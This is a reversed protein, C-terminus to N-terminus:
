TADRSPKLKFKQALADGNLARMPNAGATMVVEINPTKVSPVILLINTSGGRSYSREDVDFVDIFHSKARVM